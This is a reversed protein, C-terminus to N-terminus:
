KCIIIIKVSTIMSYWSVADPSHTRYNFPHPCPTLLSMKFYYLLENFPHVATCGNSIKSPQEIDNEITEM